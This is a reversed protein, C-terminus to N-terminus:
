QLHGAAETKEFPLFCSVACVLAILGRLIRYM